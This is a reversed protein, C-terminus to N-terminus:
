DNLVDETWKTIAETVEVSANVAEQEPGDSAKDSLEEEEMALPPEPM